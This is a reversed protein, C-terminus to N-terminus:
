EMVTLLDDLRPRDREFKPNQRTGMHIFGAFREDNKLGLPKAMQDDYIYWESLWQVDFGHAGAAILMNMAVAGASLQQEWEPIKPHPASSSIVAIVVPARTFRNREIAAMEANLERGENKAIEIARTLLKDGLSVCVDNSYHIFRWPALKGHDPVRAAIELISRLQAADPGPASMFKAPVSRRTRMFEIVDNNINNKPSEM